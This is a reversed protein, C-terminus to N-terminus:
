EPESAPLSSSGPVGWAFNYRNWETMDGITTQRVDWETVEDDGNDDESRYVIKDVAGFLVGRNAVQSIFQKLSRRLWKKRQLLKAQALQKEPDPEIVCLQVVLINLHLHGCLPSERSLVPGNHIFCNLVQYLASLIGLPGGDGWFRTDSTLALKAELTRVSSPPCPIRRWTVTNSISYYTRPNDVELKYTTNGSTRVHHQLENSITKCVLLLGLWPICLCQKTPSITNDPPPATETPQKCPKLRDVKCDLPLDVVADYIQLRLETPLDLFLSSSM